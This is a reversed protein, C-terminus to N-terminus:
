YTMGRQSGMHRQRRHLALSRWHRAFREVRRLAGAARDAAHQAAADICLQRRALGVQEPSPSPSPSLHNTRPHAARRTPTARSPTARSPTARALLGRAQLWQACGAQRLRRQHAAAAGRLVAAKHQKRLHYRAWGGWVRRRLAVERLERARREEADDHRWGAARTAWAGCARRGATRAAADTATRRVQQAIRRRVQRAADAWRM